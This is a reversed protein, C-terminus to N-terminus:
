QAAQQKGIGHVEAMRVLDAFSAAQTKMMVHSRYVDVTKRSLGLAHAIEKPPKGAVMLQVVEFERPTLSAFRAALVAREADQKRRESDLKLAQQVRDLLVKAEYPKRVFDVAGTQLARVAKEVNGHASVMIVPIQIGEKVLKEQLQLGDMGPMRLDLVLCGPDKADYARLFEEASGYAKARWGASEVLACLSTRFDKNDDVIFVTGEANV